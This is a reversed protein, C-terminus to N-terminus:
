CILSYEERRLTEEIGVSCVGSVGSVGGQVRLFFLTIFLYLSTFVFFLGLAFFYLDYFFFSSEDVEVLVELVQPREDGLIKM